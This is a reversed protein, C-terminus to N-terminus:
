KKKHWVAWGRLSHHEPELFIIILLCLKIKKQHKILIYVKLEAM